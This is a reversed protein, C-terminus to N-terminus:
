GRIGECRCRLRRGSHPRLRAVGFVQEKIRNSVADLTYVTRNGLSDAIGVLRRAADYTSTFFSGDPRTLRILQYARRRKDNSRAILGFLDNAVNPITTKLEV